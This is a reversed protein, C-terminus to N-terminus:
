RCDSRPSWRWLQRASAQYHSAKRRYRHFSSSDGRASLIRALEARRYPAVQQREVVGPVASSQVLRWFTRERSRCYQHSHNRARAGGLASMVMVSAHLPDSSRLFAIQRGDPSWAPAFGGANGFRVPEGGGILKLFLETHNKGPQQWAFVVRAGEPSISPTTQFGPYSTLPSPLLPNNVSPDASGLFWFGLGAATILLAAAAPVIPLWKGLKSTQQLNALPPKSEPCEPNGTPETATQQMSVPAVFRYGKRSLTEIYIPAGAHEGLAERLKRIASNISNDFDVYTDGSWLRKQIEDRAVVEGARELLIGLVQLPQQQLKLRVGHKRLQGTESDLEFVGFCYTPKQREPYPM